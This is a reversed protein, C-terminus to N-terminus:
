IAERLPAKWTGNDFILEFPLEASFTLEDTFPQTAVEVKSGDPFTFEAIAVKLFTNQGIKDKFQVKQTGVWYFKTPKLAKFPIM